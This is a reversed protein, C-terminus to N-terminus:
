PINEPWQLNKPATDDLFSLASRSLTVAGGNMKPKEYVEQFSSLHM